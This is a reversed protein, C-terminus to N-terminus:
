KEFANVLTSTVHRACGLDASDTVISSLDIPGLPANALLAHAILPTRNLGQTFSVRRSSSDSKEPSVVHWYDDDDGVAYAWVCERGREIAHM